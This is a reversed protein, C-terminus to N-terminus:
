DSDPACTKMDALYKETTAVHDRLPKDKPTQALGRRTAYDAIVDLLNQQLGLTSKLVGARDNHFNVLIARCDADFTQILYALKKIGGDIDTGYFTNGYEAANEEECHISERLANLQLEFTSQFKLYTEELDNTLQEGRSFDYIIATYLSDVAAELTGDEAIKLDM